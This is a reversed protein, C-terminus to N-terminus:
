IKSRSEFESFLMYAQRVNLSWVSLRGDVDGAALLLGNFSFSVTTIPSVYGRTFTNFRRDRTTSIRSLKPSLIETFNM